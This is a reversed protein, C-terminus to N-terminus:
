VHARGIENTDVLMPDTGWLAEEWDLLKDGDTDQESASEIEDLAEQSFDLRYSPEVQETAVTKQSRQHVLSLVVLVALVVLALVVTVLFNRSTSSSSRSSKM